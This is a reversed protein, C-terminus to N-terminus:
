EVMLFTRSEVTITPHAVFRKGSVHCIDLPAFHVGCAQIAGSAFLVDYKPKQLTLIFEITAGTVIVFIRDDCHFLNHRIPIAVVAIILLICKGLVEAGM